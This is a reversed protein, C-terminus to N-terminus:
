RKLTLVAGVALLALGVVRPWGVPIRDLGFLGYRDVVAAAAFQGVLFVAVTATTGLRPGALTITLVVFAGMLGGLWLWSPQHLADAYGAFSRRAALLALAGFGAAVAAAFAFAPMVGIRDGLRGMVAIQVTGAVGAVLSMSVALANGGSM